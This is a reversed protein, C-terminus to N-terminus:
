ANEAIKEAKIRRNEMIQQLRANAKKIAQPTVEQQVINKKREDLYMSGQGDFFMKSLKGGCKAAGYPMYFEDVAADLRVRKILAFLSMFVPYTLNLVYEISWGFERM